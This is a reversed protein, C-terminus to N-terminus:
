LEVGMSFQINTGIFDKWSTYGVHTFSLKIAGIPSLWVIGLGPAGHALISNLFPQDKSSFINDGANGADVFGALYFQQYIRKRLEISAETLQKGPGITHYDFGRVSDAGGAAFWFSLPLNSPNKIGTAGVAARMLLLVNNSIIPHIIKAEAKAQIFALKEHRFPEATGQVMFNIRYGATPRITDNAAKKTWTAIPLLLITKGSTNNPADNTFDWNESHVNLRLIQQWGGIMTTYGPGAKIITSTGYPESLYVSGASLDYQDTMPNKGPIIYHAELDIQYGTNTRDFPTKKVIQPFSIRFTGNFRDGYPTLNYLDMGLSARIGTDTGYGLGFSYQQKKRPTTHFIIPVQLDQAKAVNTDLIVSAFINSNTLNEQSQRLQDSSYVEGQSFTLFKKLFNPNLTSITFSAPGFFYRPGSDFALLIEASNQDLDVTITADLMKAALYGRKAALDFLGQKIQKYKITNLIDGQKLPLNVMYARFEPDHVAAGIISINIKSIHAPIGPDINYTAYWNNAIQEMKSNVITAKFYGYPELAKPIELLATEYFTRVGEVTYPKPVSKKIVEIRAQVNKLPDDSIGSFSSKIDSKLSFFGIQSAAASFSLLLLLVTSILRLFIKM